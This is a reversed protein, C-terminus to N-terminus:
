IFLVLAIMEGANCKHLTWMNPFIAVSILLFKQFFTWIYLYLWKYSEASCPYFFEMQFLTWHHLNLYIDWHCLKRIYKLCFCCVHLLNVSSCGRGLTIEIFNCYAVLLIKLVGKGLSVEPPSSRNLLYNLHHLCSLPLSDHSM